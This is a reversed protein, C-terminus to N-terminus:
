REPAAPLAPAVVNEPLATPVVRELEFSAEGSHVVLSRARRDAGLEFSVQNSARDKFFFRNRGMPHMWSRAHGPVDFYLRDDEQEVYVQRLADFEAPEILHAYKEITAASIAWEGVYKHYTGPAIKIEVPEDRAPPADGYVMLAVDQAVVNGPVVETNALVIVTTDDGLFRLMAGSYGDIAGPFSVLTQGYARSVVWGLGFGDDDPSTMRDVSEPTLVAGSRLARDWRVLDPATSVLGGAAGFTSMDIPDPPDLLEDDNWVNGVAQEGSDWADGFSTSVMGAPALIHETVYAGYSKGSVQEVIAGLLFYNSNSPLSATGPEFELPWSQFREIMQATDHPTAKWGPFSPDDTYNPIGSRHTLLDLVTIQAGRPYSPLFRSVPDGLDLAGAEQLQLIATATFPETLLGLRFRTDLTNPDGSAPDAVGFARSYKVNGARAVVIVGHFKFATGYNRGYEAIYSEVKRDFDDPLPALRAEEPPADSGAAADPDAQTDAAVAAAPDVETEPALARMGVTAVLGAAAAVAAIRVGSRRWWPSSARPVPTELLVLRPQSADLADMVRDVFDDEIADEEAPGGDPGLTRWAELARHELAALREADSPLPGDPETNGRELM